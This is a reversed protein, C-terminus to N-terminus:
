IGSDTKRMGLECTVLSSVVSPSPAPWARRNTKSAPRHPPHPPHPTGVGQKCAESAEFTTADRTRQTSCQQSATRRVPLLRRNTSAYRPSQDHACSRRHLRRKHLIPTPSASQLHDSKPACPRPPNRPRASPLWPFLANPEDGISTPEVYAAPHDLGGPAYSPAREIPEAEEARKKEAQVASESQGEYAADFRQESTSPM